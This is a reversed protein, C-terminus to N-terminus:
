DKTYKITATAMYGSYDAYTRVQIQKEGAKTLRAGVTGKQTIVPFPVEEKYTDSKAMGELQIVDTPTSPLDVTTMGTDKLEGVNLRAVYVPKGNHRETTRYERGLLMPPNEYEWPATVSGEEFTRRIVIGDPLYMTQTVTGNGSDVRMLRKEGLVGDPRPALYWGREKANPTITIEELSALGSVMRWPVAEDGSVPTALGSLKNGNMFLPGKMSLGGEPNAVASLAPILVANIYRQIELPAEDFKARLEATTMNNDAGPNDGLMSIIALNKELYPIEM